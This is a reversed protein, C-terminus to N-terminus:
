LVIRMSIIGSNSLCVTCISLHHETFVVFTITSTANTPVCAKVM